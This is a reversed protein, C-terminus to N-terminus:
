LFHTTVSSPGGQLLFFIQLATTRKDLSQRTTAESLEKIREYLELLRHGGMRQLREPLATYRTFLAPQPLNAAQYKLTMRLIWLIAWSFQTFPDEEGKGKETVRSIFAQMLDPQAYPDDEFLQFIDELLSLGGEELLRLVQGPAGHGMNAALDFQPDRLADPSTRSIVERLEAESLPTLPFHAVRSRITPLLQGTTESVLILIARSPPEELIKLISNQAQNTMTQAEDVIVVRWGADTSAKLRMFPGIKRIQEIDVHAKRVGKKEDMAPEIVFFDPHALRAVQRFIAPSDEANASTLNTKGLLARAITYALTAKGIGRPGTLLFAHPLTGNALRTEFSTVFDDHGVLKPSLRASFSEGDETLDSSEQVTMDPLDGGFLAGTDEDTEDDELDDEPDELVPDGFLDVM